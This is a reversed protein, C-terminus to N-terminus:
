CVCPMMSGRQRLGPGTSERSVTMQPNDMAATFETERPSVTVGDSGMAPFTWYCRIVAM